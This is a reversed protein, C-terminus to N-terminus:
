VVLLDPFDYAPIANRHAGGAPLAPDTAPAREFSQAIEGAALLVPKDARGPRHTHGNSWLDHRWSVISGSADLQADLAVLMAPGYPEWAFEDERTWQLRVAKGKAHKALLAADLAADDAGNHGYCGAGELHHVLIDEERLRLVMAIERRLGFIGQTHSWVELKDGHMRALACSPGISGHAIFPKRYEAQLRKVGRAKAAADAQEKAVNNEVAHAKLWAHIDAPAAPVPGWQSKAQLKKAAEIADAERQALVGVFNGDRVVQVDAPAEALKQLKVASRVMRAHLMGPLVLDHVYSARGAFKGPLDRRPVNTGVVRYEAAPKEPADGPIDIGGVDLEWYSKKGSRQLLARLEACAKRLGKGAKQISLSGSTVGEDRPFATSAPLIRIKELALGLEEAAIQALATSIGQGLEVKGTAISVTGDREFHVRQTLRRADSLPLPHEAPKNM